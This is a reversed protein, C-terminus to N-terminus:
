PIQHRLNYTLNEPPYDNNKYNNLLNNLRLLQTQCIHLHVSLSLNGTLWGPNLYMLQIHIWGQGGRERGGGGCGDHLQVRKHRRGPTLVALPVEVGRRVDAPLDHGGRQGLLQPLLVVDPGHGDALVVLDLYSSTWIVGGRDAGTHNQGKHLPRERHPVGCPKTPLRVITHKNGLHDTAVVLSLLNALNDLHVPLLVHDVDLAHLALLGVAGGHM